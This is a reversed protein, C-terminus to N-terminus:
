EEHQLEHYRLHAALAFAPVAHGCQRCIPHDDVGWPEFSPMIIDNDFVDMSNAGDCSPKDLTDVKWPRLVEDQKRFMNAIDRGAGKKDDAAGMEMNAACVNILQLNWKNNKDGQLRRLLPLLVDSVLREALAEIDLDLDFVFSPLPSSRSTRSYSFSQDAGASPWSRISLRLTKPRAIWRQGGGSECHEDPVVLDVRLRRILSRSLKQLQEIIQVLNDLGKYTDEISIQSPVDNAEKVETHDVGHLLLWVRTGIGKEAGPGALLSEISGASIDPHLRLDRATFTSESSHPATNDTQGKVHEELVQVMKSGLGPLQRLRHEDIFSVADGDRLALLTTQNRPKNKGGALKSLVKNTSVGCTSTYGFDEEIKDRLYQALHSGLLLRLYLPNWTDEDHPLPGHTCGAISTLDCSFGVQPDKQSLQFFSETMTERNLCFLNYDVIDTVDSVSNSKSCSRM